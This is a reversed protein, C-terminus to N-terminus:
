SLVAAVNQELHSQNITGVITSTVGPFQNTFRISQNPNGSHGSGLAKKIVVAKDLSYCQEILSTQSQDQENLTIMFIDCLDLALASGSVTKGSFGVAKIMGQEKLKTLTGLVETELVIHEDDGNRQDGPCM